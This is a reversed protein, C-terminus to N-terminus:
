KRKKRSKVKRIFYPSVKNKKTPKGKTLFGWPTSSPRGGSSKGEGGGHPHDIPNMAVGRVCPRIGLWRSRGAKSLNKFRHNDNSVKGLLGKAFFSVTYINGSPLLINSYFDVLNKKMIKCYTGPARAVYYRYDKNLNINYIFDGIKAYKLYCSSGEYPLLFYYNSALLDGQKSKQASLVYQFFGGEKFYCCSIFSKRFPDYEISDVILFPLSKKTDYQSLFRYSKKHGGGKRFATLRGSANRGGHSSMGKVLKKFKKKNTLYQSYNIQIQHRLSPTFPKFLKLLINNPKKM